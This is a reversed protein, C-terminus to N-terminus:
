IVYMGNELCACIKEINQDDFHFIHQLHQTEQKHKNM